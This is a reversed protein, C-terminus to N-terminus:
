CHRPRCPPLSRLACSINEVRIRSIRGPHCLFNLAAPRTGKTGPVLAKSEPLFLSLSLNPSHNNKANCEGIDAFRMTSETAQWSVVRRCEHEDLRLNRFTPTARRIFDRYREPNAKNHPMFERSRTPQTPNLFGTAVGPLRCLMLWMM